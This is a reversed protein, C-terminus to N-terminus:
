NYKIVHKLRSLLHLLIKKISTKKIDRRIAEHISQQHEFYYKDNYFVSRKYYYWWTDACLCNLSNWPKNPGTYHLTGKSFLEKFTPLDNVETKGWYFNVFHSLQFNFEQPLKEIRNRCVINIIDQDNQNYKIKLHKAFENKISENRLLELNMILFGANVYDYPTSNILQPLDSEAYNQEVLVLDLVAAIYESNELSSSYIDFLDQQFILDIDAYIVKDFQSFLDPILIRYYTEVTMHGSVSISQFINGVDRFTLSCNSYINKIRELKHIDDSNLSSSNYLIYVDYFTDFRANILLSTLTVGCPMVVNKDIAFIIPVINM